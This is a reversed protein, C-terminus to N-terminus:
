IDPVFVSPSARQTVIAVNGVIIFELDKHSDENELIKLLIM